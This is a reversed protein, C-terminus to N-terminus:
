WIDLSLVDVGGVGAAGVGDGGGGGRGAGGTVDEGGDEAGGGGLVIPPVAPLINALGNALFMADSCPTSKATLERGLHVHLTM